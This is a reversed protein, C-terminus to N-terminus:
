SREDIGTITILYAFLEDPYAPRVRHYIEPVENFVRGLRRRDAGEM